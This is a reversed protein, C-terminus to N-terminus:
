GAHSAKGSFIVMSLLPARGSDVADILVGAKVNLQALALDEVVDDLLIVPSHLSDCIRHQSELREPTRPFQEGSDLGHVHDLLPLQVAGTSLDHRCSLLEVAQSESRSTGDGGKAAGRNVIAVSGVLRRQGFEFELRLM